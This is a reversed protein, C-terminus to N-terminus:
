GDGLRAGKGGTGQSAAIDAGHSTTAPHVALTAAQASVIPESTSSEIAWGKPRQKAM